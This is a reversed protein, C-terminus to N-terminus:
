TSPWMRYDGKIVPMQFFDWRERAEFEARVWAETDVDIYNTLDVDGVASGDYVALYAWLGVISVPGVFTDSRVVGIIYAWGDDVALDRVEIRITEPNGGITRVVRVVGAAGGGPLEHASIMTTRTDGKLDIGQATGVASAPRAALAPVTLALVLVVATILVVLIKRM